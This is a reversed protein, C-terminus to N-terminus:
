VFKCGSIFVVMREIDVERVSVSIQSTKLCVKKEFVMGKTKPINVCIKSQNCFAQLKSVMEQLETENDAILIIDDAYLLFIFILVDGISVGRNDKKMFDVINVTSLYTLYYHLYHVAKDLGEM